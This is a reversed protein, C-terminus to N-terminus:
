RYVLWFSEKLFNEWITVKSRDLHKNMLMGDHLSLNLELATWTSYKKNLNASRCTKGQDRQNEGNRCCETLAEYKNM